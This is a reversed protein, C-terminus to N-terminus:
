IFHVALYLIPVSKLCVTLLSFLTLRSSADEDRWVWAYLIDTAQTKQSHRKISCTNKIYCKTKEPFVNKVAKKHKPLESAQIGLVCSQPLLIMTCMQLNYISAMIQLQMRQTEWWSSQSTMLTRTLGSDAMTWAFSVFSLQHPSPPLLSLTPAWSDAECHWYQKREMTDLGATGDRWNVHAPNSLKTQKVAEPVFILM